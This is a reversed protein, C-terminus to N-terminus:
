DSATRNPDNKGYDKEEIRINENRLGAVLIWKKWTIKYQIYTALASAFGIRNSERGMVGDSTQFMNGNSMQYADENQFRDVGDQHYRIGLDM